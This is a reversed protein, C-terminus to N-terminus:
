PRPTLQPLRRQLRSRHPPQPMPPIIGIASPTLVNATYDGAKLNITTTSPTPSPALTYSPTNTSASTSTTPSNRCQMPLHGFLDFYANDANAYQSPKPM